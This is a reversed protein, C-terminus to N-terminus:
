DWERLEGINVTLQYCDNALPYFSEQLIIGYISQYPILSGESGNLHDDYIVLPHRKDIAEYEARKEKNMSLNLTTTSEIDYFNYLHKIQQSKEKVINKVYSIGPMVEEVSVAKSFFIQGYNAQYGNGGEIGCAEITGSNSLEIIADRGSRGVLYDDLDVSSMLNSGSSSYTTWQRINVTQGSNLDANRFFVHTFEQAGGKKLYVLRRTATGTQAYILHRGGGLINRLGSYESTQEVDSSNTVLIKTANLGVTNSLFHIM